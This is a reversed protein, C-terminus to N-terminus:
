HFPTASTTGAEERVPASPFSERITPSFDRNRFFVNSGQDPTWKVPEWDPEYNRITGSNLEIRMVGPERFYLYDIEGVGHRGPGFEIAAGSDLLEVHALQSLLKESMWSRREQSAPEGGLIWCDRSRRRDSTTIGPMAANSGPWSGLVASSTENRARTARVEVHNTVLLEGGCGHVEGTGQGTFTQGDPELRARARVRVVKAPEGEPGTLVVHFQYSLQHGDVTWEGIGRPLQGTDSRVLDAHVIVGQPLFTLQVRETEGERPGKAFTLHANWSGTVDLRNQHSATM